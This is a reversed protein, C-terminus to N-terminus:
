QRLVLSNPKQVTLAVYGDCRLPRTIAFHGPARRGRRSRLNKWRMSAYCTGVTDAYTWTSVDVLPEFEDKRSTFDVDGRRSILVASM